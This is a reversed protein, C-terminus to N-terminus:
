DLLADHGIDDGYVATGPALAVRGGQELFGNLSSPLCAALDLLEDQPVQLDLGAQLKVM